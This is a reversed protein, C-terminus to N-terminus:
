RLNSSINKQELGPDKRLEWLFVWLGGNDREMEGEGQVKNDRLSYLGKEVHHNCM